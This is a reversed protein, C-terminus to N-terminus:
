NKILYDLSELYGLLTIIAFKHEITKDSTERVNDTYDKLREIWKIPLEVTENNTLKSIPMILKCTKPTQCPKSNSPQNSIDM